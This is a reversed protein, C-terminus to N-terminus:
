SYKKYFKEVVKIKEEPKLDSHKLEWELKDILENIRQNSIRQLKKRVIEPDPNNAKKNRKRISNVKVATLEALEMYGDDDIFGKDVYQPEKIRGRVEMTKGDGTRVYGTRYIAWHRFSPRHIKNTFHSKRENENWVDNPDEFMLTGRRMQRPTTVDNLGKSKLYDVAYKQGPTLEPMEDAESLYGLENLSEDLSAYMSDVPRRDLEKFVKHPHTKTKFKASIMEINTPDNFISDREVEALGERELM